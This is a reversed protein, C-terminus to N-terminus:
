RKRLTGRVKYRRSFIDLTERMPVFGLVVHRSHPADFNFAEEATRIYRGWPSESAGKVKNIHMFLGMETWAARQEIESSNTIKLTM